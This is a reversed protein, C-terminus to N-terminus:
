TAVHAQRLVFELRRQRLEGLLARAIEVLAIERLLM